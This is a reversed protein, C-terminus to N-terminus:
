RDSLMTGDLRTPHEDFGDIHIVERSTAGATVYQRRERHPRHICLKCTQCEYINEVTNSPILVNGKLVHGAPCRVPGVIVIEDGRGTPRAWAIEESGAGAIM